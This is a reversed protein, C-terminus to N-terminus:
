RDEGDAERVEVSQMADGIELTYVTDMGEVVQGFVAHKGNLHPTAEHTIFFQSGNTDPGANAMSLIGPGSHKRKLASEEDDWEYGPGGTGTGDPDGGQAMFGPIIRHFTVGDYFGADALNKFNAVTLPADETFLDIVIEGKDTEIVAELDKGKVAEADAKTPPALDDALAPAALATAALLGAALSTLKM